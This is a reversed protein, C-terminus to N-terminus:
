NRSRAPRPKQEQSEKEQEETVMKKHNRDIDADIMLPDLDRYLRLIAIAEEYQGREEYWRAVGRFKDKILMPDVGQNRATEYAEKAKEVDNMQLYIDGILAYYFYPNEDAPRHSDNLRRQIHLKYREIAQQLKGEDRLQQAIQANSLHPDFEAEGYFLSGYVRCGCLLCLLAGVVLFCRSIPVTRHSCV